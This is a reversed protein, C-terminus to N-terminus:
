AARTPQAVASVVFESIGLLAKLRARPEAAALDARRADAYSGVEVHLTRFGHDRLLRQARRPTFTHPHGADVRLRSLVRHVVFGWPTRCNVTLYLTGATSLVRRLERMAAQVDRVHDICNEMIVLDYRESECPLAEASGQRYEVAPDRLATLTANGAYYPELPDIAVRESAPFFGVVGVPGSGVEVVRARGDTLHELYLSRLRLVLQEARWRYWDLQSVSGDAIRTALSEWYGREYRQARQWRAPSVM